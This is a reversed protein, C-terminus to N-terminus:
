KMICQRIVDFVISPSKRFDIIPKRLMEKGSDYVRIYSEDNFVSVSDNSRVFLEKANDQVRLNKQSSKDTKGISKRSSKDTKGVSKQSSKDTKGVSKQSSKDTKGLLVFFFTGFCRTTNSKRYM